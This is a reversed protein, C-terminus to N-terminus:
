GEKVRGKKNKCLRGYTDQIPPHVYCLQVYAKSM